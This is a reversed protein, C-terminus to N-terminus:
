RFTGLHSTCVSLCCNRTPWDDKLLHLTPKAEILADDDDDEDDDDDGNDDDDDDNEDVSMMVATMFIM